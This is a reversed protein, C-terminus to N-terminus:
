GTKEMDANAQAEYNEPYPVGLNRMTHIKSATTGANIENEFMSPYSPMISGSAMSTPDYMHNFHWSNPYKGGVRALDPGTRKSGFQFPHDYIFEGAKSYEGYRKVEARFPRIMQSHCNYCGERLYLDRGHLELPTYPKVSTITPINSKVLFTPVMEVIGGILIVILATVLMLVPKREFISHWHIGTPVVYNKQLAPAEAEEQAVFSGSKATKYLNYIMMAVGVLFITGGVARMVYFPLVSQVVDMFTYQLQGDPTFAKLMFYSRFASWYMPVAYLIIGLTGIWFHASALSKSYLKTNFLRPFLWYLMGFTMFGNWGLAGIHVHAVTWDTYHSIANVNKLSLMPGEFTSM